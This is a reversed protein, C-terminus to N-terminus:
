RARRPPSLESALPLRATPGDGGLAARAHLRAALSDFDRLREDWFAQSPGAGRGAAAHPPPALLSALYSTSGGRAAAASAAAADAGGDSRAAVAAMCSGVHDALAAVDRRLRDVTGELAGRRAAGDAASGELRAALRAADARAAAADSRAQQAAAESAAASSALLQLEEARRELKALHRKLRRAEARGAELAGGSAEWQQQLAEFRAAADEQQSACGAVVAKLQGTVSLMEGRAWAELQRLGGTGAAAAEARLAGSEARAERAVSQVAEDVAERHAALQREVRVAAAEAAAAACDRADALGRRLSDVEARLGALAADVGDRWQQARAERRAAESAGSQQARHLAGIQRVLSEVAARAMDLERPVDREKLAVLPALEGASRAEWEALRQALETIRMDLALITDLRALQPSHEAAM